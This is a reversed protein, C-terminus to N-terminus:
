EHNRVQWISEARRYGELFPIPKLCPQPADAASRNLVVGGRTVVGYHLNSENPVYGIYLNGHGDHWFGQRQEGCWFLPGLIRRFMVLDEGRFIRPGRPTGTWIRLKGIDYIM